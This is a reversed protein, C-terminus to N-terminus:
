RRAPPSTTSSTATSTSRTSRTTSSRHQRPLHPRARRAAGAGARQRLPLRGHQGRLGPKGRRRLQHQLREDGDDARRGGRTGTASRRHVHRLPRTRHARRAARHPLPLPPPRVARGRVRLHDGRRARHDRRRPGAGRGDGVSAPRPLPDHASAGLQERFSGSAAGGRHLALEPRPRPRQLDLGSLSGRSRGRDGQGRRGADVRPAHAREGDPALARLRFRAAARDPQLRQLRPRGGGRGSVHTRGSRRRAFRGHRRRPYRCAGRAVAPSTGGHLGRHPVLEHLVPLTAGAVAAGGLLKRRSVKRDTAM